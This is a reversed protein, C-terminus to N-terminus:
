SANMAALRRAALRQELSPKPPQSHRPSSPMPAHPMPAHPMPALLQSSAAHPPPLPPAHPGRGTRRTPQSGHRLIANAAKRRRELSRERLNPDDTPTTAESVTALACLASLEIQAAILKCRAVLLTHVSDLLDAHKSAWNALSALSMNVRKAIDPLAGPELFAVLIPDQHAQTQDAHTNHALEM